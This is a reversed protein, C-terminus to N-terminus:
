GFFLKGAREIDMDIFSLIALTGVHLDDRVSFWESIGECVIGVIVVAIAEVVHHM